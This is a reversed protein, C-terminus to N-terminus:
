KKQIFAADYPLVSFYKPPQGLPIRSPKISFPNVKKLKSYDSVYHTIQTSMIPKDWKSNDILPRSYWGIEQNATQPRTYKEKPTKTYKQFPQTFKEKTFAVEIPNLNVKYSPRSQDKQKIISLNPNKPNINQPKETM